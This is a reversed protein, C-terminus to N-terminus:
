CLKTSCIEVKNAPIVIVDIFVNEEDILAVIMHYGHYIKLFHLLSSLVWFKGILNEQFFLMMSPMVSKYIAFLSRLKLYM